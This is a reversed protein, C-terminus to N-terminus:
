FTEQPLVHGLLDANALWKIMTMAGAQAVTGTLIGGAAGGRRGPIM